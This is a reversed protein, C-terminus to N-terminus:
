LRVDCFTVHFNNKCFCSIVIQQADRHHLSAIFQSSDVNQLARNELGPSPYGFLSFALLWFLIQQIQETSDTKATTSSSRM